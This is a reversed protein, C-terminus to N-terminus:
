AGLALRYRDTSLLRCTNEYASVAVEEAGTARMLNVGQCRVDQGTPRILLVEAGRGRASAAEQQLSRYGIRRTLRGLADVDSLPDYAMPAVGIILDCGLRAAIDLNTSSHVGGDVYTRGNIRVPVYFGPIACSAMVAQAPTVPSREPGFVTRRGTGIDVACIALGMDPWTSVFDDSFRKAAEDMSFLGAYLLPHLVDPLRPTPLRIVSRGAVFGSGVMRRALQGASRFTPAYATSARREAPTAGLGEMSPHTGLALEWMDDVSHGSRLYAAMVSGASTGVVLDVSSPTIGGERELARLVGAHYALGVMGGAGLVLAVRPLVHYTM